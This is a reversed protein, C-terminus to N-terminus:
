IHSMIPDLNSTTVEDVTECYLLIYHIASRDSIM